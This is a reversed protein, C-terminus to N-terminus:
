NWVEKVVNDPADPLREPIEFGLSYFHYNVMPDGMPDVENWDCPVTVTDGVKKVSISNAGVQYAVGNQRMLIMGTLGFSNMNSSVAVVKFVQSTPLEYM